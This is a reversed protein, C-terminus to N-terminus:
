QEGRLSVVIETGRSTVPGGWQFANAEAAPEGQRVYSICHAFGLERAREFGFDQMMHSIGRRRYEPKVFTGWLTGTRGRTTELGLGYPSEGFLLVGAPSDGVEALLPFGFLSGEVYSRYLSVFTDLNARSPPVTGGKEYYETVYEAWLPAWLPLDRLSAVRM